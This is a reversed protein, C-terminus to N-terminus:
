IKYFVSYKSDKDENTRESDQRRQTKAQHTEAEVAGSRPPHITCASRAQSRSGMTHVFQPKYFAISLEQETLTALKDESASIGHM